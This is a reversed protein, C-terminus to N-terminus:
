STSEAVIPGKSLIVLLWLLREFWEVVEEGVEVLWPGMYWGTSGHVESMDVAVEVLASAYGFGGFMVM